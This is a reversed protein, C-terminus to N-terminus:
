PLKVPQILPPFLHNIEPHLVALYLSLNFLGLTPPSSKATWGEERRVSPKPPTNYYSFTFLLLVAATEGKILSIATARGWVVPSTLGLFFKLQNLRRVANYPLTKNHDLYQVLSLLANTLSGSITM